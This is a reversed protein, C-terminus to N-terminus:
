SEKLHEERDADLVYYPFGKMRKIAEEIETERFVQSSERFSEELNEHYELSVRLPLKNRRCDSNFGLIANQINRLLKLEIYEGTAIVYSKLEEKEFNTM